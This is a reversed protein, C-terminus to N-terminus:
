CIFSIYEEEEQRVSLHVYLNGAHISSHVAPGGPQRFAEEGGCDAGALAIFMDSEHNFM